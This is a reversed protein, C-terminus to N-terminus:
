PCADAVYDIAVAAGAAPTTAADFVIRPGADDYTWGTASVGDVTVSLTEPVPPASLAYVSPDSAHLAGALSVLNAEPDDCIDLVVGGTAAAAGQYRTLAATTGCSGATAIAHVAVDDPDAKLAQFLSVYDAYPQVSQEVEDSVGVLHLTSTARLLGANCAGPASADVAAEMRMFAREQNAGYMAGFGIMRSTAASVDAASFTSDIFLDPGEICGNDAATVTVRWDLGRADLEATFAPMAASLGAVDDAMSPSRDVAFLVDTAPGTAIFTDTAGASAAPTGVIEVALDGADTEVVLAGIHETAPETPAYTVAFEAVAGPGIPLPVADDDVSFPPDIRLGTVTFAETGANWVAVDASTSCGLRAAAVGVRTVSEPLPGSGAGALAIVVDPEDPDNSRITLEAQRAEVDDPTFTVVVDTSQGPTLRFTDPLSAEFGFDGDVDVGYLRLDGTGRNSLTLVDSVPEGVSAPPLTLTTASVAIDPGRAGPTDGVRAGTDDSAEDDDTDKAELCGPALLPLLLPLLTRAPRTM